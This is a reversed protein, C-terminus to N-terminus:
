HTRMVLVLTPRRRAAPSKSPAIETQSTPHPAGGSSARSSLGPSSATALSDTADENDDAVLVRLPRSPYGYVFSPFVM